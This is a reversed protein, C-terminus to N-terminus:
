KKEATQQLKKAYDAFHRADEGFSVIWHRVMADTVGAECDFNIELATYETDKGQFNVVRVFKRNLNYRNIDELAAEELHRRNSNTAERPLLM